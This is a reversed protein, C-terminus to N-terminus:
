LFQTPSECHVQALGQSVADVFLEELLHLLPVYFRVALLKDQPDPQQLFEVPQWLGNDGRIPQEDLRALFLWLLFLLPPSLLQRCHRRWSQWTALVRRSQATTASEAREMTNPSRMESAAM